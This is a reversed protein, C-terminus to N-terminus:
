VIKSDFEGFQICFFRYIFFSPLKSSDLAILKVRHLLAARSGRRLYMWGIYCFPSMSVYMSKAYKSARTLMVPGSKVLTGCALFVIMFSIIFHSSGIGIYM